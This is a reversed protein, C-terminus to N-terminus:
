YWFVTLICDSDNNNSSGRWFIGYRETKEIWIPVFTTLIPRWTFICRNVSSSNWSPSWYPSTIKRLNSGGSPHVDDARRHPAVVTLEQDITCKNKHNNNYDAADCTPLREMDLGATNVECAGGVLRWDGDTDTECTNGLACCSSCCLAFARSNSV